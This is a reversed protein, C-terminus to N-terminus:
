DIYKKNINRYETIFNEVEFESTTQFFDVIIKNLNGFMIDKFKITLAPSLTKIQEKWNSFILLDPNEMVTKLLLEYDLPDMHAISGNCMFKINNPNKCLLPWMSKYFAMKAITLKDDQDFDILVLEESSNLNKIWHQHRGIANHCDGTVPNIKPLITPLCLSKNFYYYFIGKAFSGCSGGVFFFTYRNKIEM